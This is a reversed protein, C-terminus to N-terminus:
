WANRRPMVSDSLTVSSSHSRDGALDTRDTNNVTLYITARKLLDWGGGTKVSTASRMPEMKVKFATVGDLMLHSTGDRTLTLTKADADYAYTTEVGDATYMALSPSEVTAGAAFSAALSADDPAHLKTERITSVIRYLTVRSRQMLDAESTNIAYTKFSADVAVAVATLLAAVISLSVLLEVIGLGRSRRRRLRLDLISPRPDRPAPMRM